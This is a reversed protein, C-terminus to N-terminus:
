LQEPFVHEKALDRTPFFLSQNKMRVLTKKEISMGGKEGRIRWDDEGIGGKYQIM